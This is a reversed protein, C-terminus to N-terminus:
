ALFLRRFKANILVFTLPFILIPLINFYELYNSKHWNTNIENMSKIIFTLFQDIALIFYVFCIHINNSNLESKQIGSYTILSISLIYSLNSILSSHFISLSLLLVAFVKIRIQPSNFKQPWFATIFLSNSLIHFYHFPVTKPSYYDVLNSALAISCFILFVHNKIILKRLKLTKFVLVLQLFIEVCNSIKFGNTLTLPLEFFMSASM